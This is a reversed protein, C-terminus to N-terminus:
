PANPSGTFDWIIRYFNGLTIEDTIRCFRHSKSLLQNNKNYQNILLIEGKYDQFISKTMYIYDKMKYEVNKLTM